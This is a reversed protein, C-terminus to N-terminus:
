GVPARNGRRGRFGQFAASSAPRPERQGVWWSSRWWARFSVCVSWAWWSGCGSVKHETFPPSQGTTDVIRNEQSDAATALPSSICLRCLQGVRRTKNLRRPQLEQM